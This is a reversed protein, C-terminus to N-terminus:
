DSTKLSKNVSSNDGGDLFGEPAPGYRIGDTVLPGADLQCLAPMLACQNLHFWTLLVDRSDGWKWRVADTIPVTVRWEPNWGPLMVECRQGPDRGGERRGPGLHEPAPLISCSLIHPPWVHGALCASGPPLSSLEQSM